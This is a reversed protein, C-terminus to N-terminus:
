VCNLLDSVGPEVSLKWLVCTTPYRLERLGVVGRQVVRGMGLNGKQVKRVGLFMM